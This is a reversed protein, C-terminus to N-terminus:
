RGQGEVLPKLLFDLLDQDKDSHKILVTDLPIGLLRLYLASLLQDTALEGTQRRKEFNEILIKQQEAHDQSPESSEAPVEKSLHLDVIHALKTPSPEPLSLRLCRRLFAPPFEREENSTLIVFPFEKCIVKGGAIPVHYGDDHAPIEVPTDSQPLRKLEPIEFEGEEFVHLLDNPLDIDSKDIEDILLVRPRESPVLATGLPGLRLFRSLDPTEKPHLQQEQLRGLVDYSYLGEKLTSRSTISWRLVPGLNLDHAVAYALSSKGTGPKGTILLPRRLVLAANVMEIELSDAEYREGRQLERKGVSPLPRTGSPVEGSFRRWPPALPLKKPSGDAQRPGKFYYWEKIDTRNMDTKNM